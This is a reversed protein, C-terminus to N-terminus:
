KYGIYAKQSRATSEWLREHMSGSRKGGSAYSQVQGRFTAPSVIFFARSHNIEIAIGSRVMGTM